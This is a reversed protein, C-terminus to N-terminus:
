HGYFGAAQGTGGMAAANIRIISRAGLLLALVLFSGLVWKLANKHM